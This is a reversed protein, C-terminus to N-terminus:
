RTRVKENNENHMELEKRIIEEDEDDDGQRDGDYRAAEVGITIPRIDVATALNSAIAKSGNSDAATKNSDPNATM